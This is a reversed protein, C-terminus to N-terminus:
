LSDSISAEAEVTPRIKNNAKNIELGQGFIVFDWYNLWFAIKLSTVNQLVRAGGIKKFIESLRIANQCFIIVGNKKIRM